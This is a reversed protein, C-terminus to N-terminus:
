IKIYKASSQVLTRVSERVSCRVFRAACRPVSGVFAGYYAADRYLDKASGQAETEQITKLLTSEEYNLTSQNVMLECIYRKGCDNADISAIMEFIPSDPQDSPRVSAEISRKGRKFFSQVPNSSRGHGHGGGGGGHGHGGGYGSQVPQIVHYTQQQEGGGRPTLLSLVGGLAAGAGAALALGALGIALAQQASTTVIGFQSHILPICGLIGVVIISLRM